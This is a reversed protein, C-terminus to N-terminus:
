SVFESVIKRVEALAADVGGMVEESLGVEYHEAERPQCGVIWVSKPLIGLGKALMLAREPVAYHMDALQDHRESVPMASVDLVDPRLVLVAGPERGVDVADLVILVDVPEMLQQVLHIGGIGVDMVTVDVPVGEEILRQAAVVGFGDDGRLVNGTGAILLKV